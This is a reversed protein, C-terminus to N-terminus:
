GVQLAIRCGLVLSRFAFCYVQMYRKRPLLLDDSVGRTAGWCNLVGSAQLQGDVDSRMRSRVGEPVWQGRRSTYMRLELILQVLYEAPVVNVM